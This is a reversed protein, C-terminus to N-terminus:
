RLGGAEPAFGGKGGEMPNDKRGRQAAAAETGAGSPVRFDELHGRGEARCRRVGADGGLGTGVEM